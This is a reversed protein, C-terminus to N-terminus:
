VREVRGELMQAFLSEYQAAGSAVSFHAEIYQRGNHGLADCRPRDRSLAAIAQALQDPQEPAVCLGCDAEDVIKPADGTLPLSLVAPRGASMISLLKSPVVPTGVDARLTVLSADSAHLVAPYRERSQMPVWIVNDLRLDQAKQKLRPTEVGDGVLVFRIDPAGQLLHAAVLVTDLDQSYGMTGAFSVVFEDGLGLERRFGNHREGPSVFNTDIWNHVVTVKDACGMKGAVDLRNGESHVTIHDAMAYIRQELWEFFRILLPQKLVGLDIASQPFIDQVNLIFPCRRRRSLYRTALGIPLPPSYMLLVDPRPLGSGARAYTWALLFHEIGRLMPIHQPLNPTAIRQVSVTGQQELLARKHVYEAPIEKINYRPFGTLVTVNHGRRGLEQSLEYYLHSAAGIEPPWYNTLLFINM